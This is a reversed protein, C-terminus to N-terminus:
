PETEKQMATRDSPSAGFVNIVFDFTNESNRTRASIIRMTVERREASASQFSTGLPEIFGVM